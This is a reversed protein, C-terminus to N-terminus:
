CRHRRRTTTRIKMGKFDSLKTLPKNSFHPNEYWLGHTVVHGNYRTKWAEAILDGMYADLVIKYEEMSNM